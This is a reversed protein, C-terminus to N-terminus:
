LLRNPDALIPSLRFPPALRAGGHAVAAGPPKAPRRCGTVAAALVDATRPGADGIVAELRPRM